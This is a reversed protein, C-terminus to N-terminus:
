GGHNRRKWFLVEVFGVGGDHLSAHLVSQAFAITDPLKMGEAMQESRGMEDFIKRTPREKNLVVAAESLLLQLPQQFADSLAIQGDAVEGGGYGFEPLPESQALSAVGVDEGCREAVVRM